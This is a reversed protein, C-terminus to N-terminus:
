RHKMRNELWYRGITTCLSWVVNGESTTIRYARKCVTFPIGAQVADQINTPRVASHLVKTIPASEHSSFITNKGSFNPSLDNDLFIKFCEVQILQVYHVKEKEKWNIFSTPHTKEHNEKKFKRYFSMTRHTATCTRIHLSLYSTCPYPFMQM